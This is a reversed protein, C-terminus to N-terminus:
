RRRNFSMGRTRSMVAWNVNLDMLTTNRTYNVYIMWIEVLFRTPIYRRDVWLLQFISKMRSVINVFKSCNLPSKSQWYNCISTSYSCCWNWPYMHTSSLRKKKTVVPIWLLAGFWDAVMRSQHSLLNNLTDICNTAIFRTLTEGRQLQSPSKKSSRHHKCTLEGLEPLCSWHRIHVQQCKCM